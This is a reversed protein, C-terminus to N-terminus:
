ILLHQLLYESCIGMVFNEWRYGFLQEQLWDRMITLKYLKVLYVTLVQGEHQKYHHFCHREVLVLRKIGYQSDLKEKLMKYM